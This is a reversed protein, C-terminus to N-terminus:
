KFFKSKYNPWLIELHQYSKNLCSWFNFNNDNKSHIFYSYLSCQVLDEASLVTGNGRHVRYWTSIVLIINSAMVHRTQIISSDAIFLNKVFGEVVGYGSVLDKSAFECEVKNVRAPLYTKISLDTQDTSAARWSIQCTKTLM